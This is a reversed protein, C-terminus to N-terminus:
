AVRSSRLRRLQVETIRVSDAEVAIVRDATTGLLVAGIIRAASAVRATVPVERRPVFTRVLWVREPPPPPQTDSLEGMIEEFPMLRGTFVSWHVPVSSGDPRVLKGRAGQLMKEMAERNRRHSTSEGDSTEQLQEFRNTDPNM